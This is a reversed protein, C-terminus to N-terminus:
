PSVSQLYAIIDARDAADRVTFFMRTGPVLKGPGQLWQDLRDPTWAFAAAKLAPSYSFDSVAGAKRGVVGAHRPGIRNAAVSHCGGCRGQYLSAGRATDAAVAASPLLAALGLITLAAASTHLPM